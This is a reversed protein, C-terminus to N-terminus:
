QDPADKANGLAALAKDALRRHLEALVPVAKDGDWTEEGCMARAVTERQGALWVAVQEAVHEGWGACAYCATRYNLEGHVDRCRAEAIVEALGMGLRGADPTPATM